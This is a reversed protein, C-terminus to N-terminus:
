TDTKCVHSSCCYFHMHSHPSTHLERARTQAHTQSPRDRLYPDTNTHVTPPTCGVEGERPSTTIESPRMSSPIPERARAGRSGFAANKTPVGGHSVSLENEGFTQRPLTEPHNAACGRRAPEHYLQCLLCVPDDHGILLEVDQHIIGLFQHDFIPSTIGPAPATGERHIDPLGQCPTSPGPSPGQFQAWWCRGPLLTPRLGRGSVWPAIPRPHTM